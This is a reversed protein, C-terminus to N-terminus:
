GIPISKVKSRATLASNGGFVLRATLKRARKIKSRKITVRASFDCGQDVKISKHAVQTTKRLLTLRVRGSCGQTSTVTDPLKLKGAIRFRVTAGVRM